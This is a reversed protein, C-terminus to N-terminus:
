KTIVGKTIIPYYSTKGVVVPTDGVRCKFYNGVIKLSKAMAKVTTTNNFTIASNGGRGKKDERLRFGDTTETIYWDQPNEEDQFLSVRRGDGLKMIKCLEPSLNVLGATVNCSITPEGTKIFSSNTLNFEKLKM